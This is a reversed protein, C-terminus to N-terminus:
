RYDPWFWAGSCVRSGDRWKSQPASHAPASNAFRGRLHRALRKRAPTKLPATAAEITATPPEYGRVGFDSGDAVGKATCVRRATRKEQGQRTLRARVAHPELDRRENWERWDRWGMGRAPMREPTPTAHRRVKCRRHILKPHWGWAQALTIGFNKRLSPLLGRSNDKDKMRACFGAERHDTVNKLPRVSRCLTGPAGITATRRGASESREGRWM